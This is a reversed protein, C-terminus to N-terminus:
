PAVLSLNQTDAAAQKARAEQNARRRMQYRREILDLQNLIAPQQDRMFWEFPTKPYFSAPPTYVEGRTVVTNARRLDENHKKLGAETYVDKVGPTTEFRQESVRKVIANVAPAVEAQYDAPNVRTSPDDAYRNAVSEIAAFHPALDPVLKPSLKMDEIAYDAMAPAKELTKPVTRSRFTEPAGGGAGASPSGGMRRQRIRDLQARLPAQDLQARLSRAKKLDRVEDPAYEGIIRLRGTQLDPVSVEISRQSPTTTGFDPDKIRNGQADTEYFEGTGNNTRKYRGKDEIQVNRLFTDKDYGHPLMSDVDIGTLDSEWKSQNRRLNAGSQQQLATMSYDDFAQERQEQPVNPLGMFSQLWGMHENPFQAFMSRFKPDFLMQAQRAADATSFESDFENFSGLLRASRNQAATTARLTARQANLTNDYNAADLRRQSEYLDAQDQLIELRVADMQSKRELQEPQSQYDAIKTDDQAQKVRETNLEIQQLDSYLSMGQKLGSTVGQIIATTTTPIASGVATGAQAAKPFLMPDITPGQPQSFIDYASM